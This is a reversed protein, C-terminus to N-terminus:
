PVLGFVTGPAGSGDINRPGGVVIWGGRVPMADLNALNELTMRHLRLTLWSAIFDPDDTPDPGFTDSGLAGRNGLIGREILWRVARESFGPQRFKGAASGCNYYTRTRAGIDPGWWRDCGTRLLVAADKPFPGHRDRWRVLDRVTVHYEPERLVKERINVVVAPLVMDAPGLQNACRAGEHFHCPASYHTGTHEGETVTQMYFGDRAVTFATRLTFAPDGPFLPTRAPDNVHSLFVVRSFGPMAVPQGGRFAETESGAAARGARYSVAGVLGCVLVLSALVVIMRRM